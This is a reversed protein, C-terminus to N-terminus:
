GINNLKAHWGAKDMNYLSILSHHISPVYLAENLSVTKLRGRDQIQFTIPGVGRVPHPTTGIRVIM